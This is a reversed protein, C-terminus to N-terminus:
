AIKTLIESTYERGQKVLILDLDDIKKGFLYVIYTMKAGGSLKHGYTDVMAGEGLARVSRLDM